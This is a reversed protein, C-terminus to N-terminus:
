AIFKIRTYSLKREYTSGVIIQQSLGQKIRRIDEQKQSQQFMNYEQFIQQIAKETDPICILQLIEKIKPLFQKEQKEKLKEKVHEIVYILRQCESYNNVDNIIQTLMDSKLAKQKSTMQPINQRSSIGIVKIDSNGNKQQLISNMQQQKNNKTDIYIQRKDVYVDSIYEQTLYNMDNQNFKMFQNIKLQNQCLPCNIQQKNQNNMFKEIIYSIMERLDCVQKLSCQNCRVPIQIYKSEKQNDSIKIQRQLYICIQDINENTFSNKWKQYAQQYNEQNYLQFFIQGCILNFYEIYERKYLRYKCFNTFYGDLYPNQQCRLQFSQQIIEKYIIPQSLLLCFNEKNIKISQEKIQIDKQQLIQILDYQKKQLHKQDQEIEMQSNNNISGNNINDLFQVPIIIKQKTKSCINQLFNQHNKNSTQLMENQNQNNQYNKNLIAIYEQLSEFKQANLVKLLQQQEDLLDYCMKPIIYNNSPFYLLKDYSRDVIQLIMNVDEHFYLQEIIQNKIQEKNEKQNQFDYKQQCFSCSFQNKNQLLEYFFAYFDYTQGPHQKFCDFLIVPKDIIVLSDQLDFNQQSNQVSENQKNLQFTQFLNVVIKDQFNDINKQGKFDIKKLSQQIKQLDLKQDSQKEGYLQELDM